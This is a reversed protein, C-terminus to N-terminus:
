KRDDAYGAAEVVDKWIEDQEALFSHFDESSAMKIGFGNTTMFQRYEDSAGIEMCAAELSDVTEQPTGKPLALGRWGMVQWEVGIEKATPVDPHEELRKEALVALVALEGSEIQNAAEPVSCCVADIHGGVLEALSPAAGKNPIWVVSDVAQNDAQLLGARALDWAGGTATGSMKITGPAKKVEDLLERLSEWRADSRVIIAAADANVQVLPSFDEYTLECIGMRHMTSLEFTIMTVTNGDAKARAGATHGVAGSGGTRNVVVVPRDLKKQLADAWFRSVRDTGGGAAWPCIITMPPQRGCGPLAMMTLLVLLFGRSRRSM